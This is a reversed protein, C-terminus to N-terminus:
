ARMEGTRRERVRRDVTQYKEYFFYGVPVKLFDAFQKIRSASMRNVAKEYKQIQQFTVGSHQALAEQTIGLEHRRSCLQIGAFIDTPHPVPNPIPNPSNNPHKSSVTNPQNKM